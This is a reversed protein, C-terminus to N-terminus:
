GSRPTLGLGIFVLLAFSSISFILIFLFTFENKKNKISKYLIYPICSTTLYFILIIIFFLPSISRLFHYDCNFINRCLYGNLWM